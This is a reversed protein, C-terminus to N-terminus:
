TDLSAIILQSGYWIRGAIGFGDIDQVYREGSESDHDTQLASTPPKSPAISMAKVFNPSDGELELSPYVKNAM